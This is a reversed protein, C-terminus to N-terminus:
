RSLCLLLLLLMLKRLCGCLVCVSVKARFEVATHNKVMARFQDGAHCLRKYYAVDLKRESGVKLHDNAACLTKTLALNKNRIM